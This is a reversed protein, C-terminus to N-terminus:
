KGGTGSPKAFASSPISHGTATVADEDAKGEGAPNDAATNLSTNGLDNGARQPGAKSPIINM